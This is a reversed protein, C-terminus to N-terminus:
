WAYGIAGAVMVGGRCCIGLSSWHEDGDYMDSLCLGGGGGSNFRRLLSHAYTRILVRM